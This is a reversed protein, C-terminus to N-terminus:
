PKKRQKVQHELAALEAEDAADAAQSEHERTQTDDLQTM